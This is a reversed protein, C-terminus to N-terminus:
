KKNKRQSIVAQKPSHNFWELKEWLACGQIEKLEAHNERITKLM